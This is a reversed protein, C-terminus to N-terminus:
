VLKVLLIPIVKKVRKEIEYIKASSLEQKVWDSKTSHRSLIIAFYDSGHIGEFVKEVINDGVRVQNKDLWVRFGENELRTYITTAIQEDQWSYSLFIDFDNAM